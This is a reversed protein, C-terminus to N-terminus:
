VEVEAARPPVITIPCEAHLVCYLGVSGLLVSRVSGRARHGVVLLAADKAADVLVEGPRGVMAEVTIPLERASVGRAAVIKDVFRQTQSRVGSVIEDPPPPQVYSPYTTAWFDPLAVASVVRVPVGRREAEDLAYELAAQAGPSGDMGVVVPQERM